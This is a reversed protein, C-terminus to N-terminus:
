CEKGEYIGILDATGAYKGPYHLTTEMGYIEELKNNTLKRALERTKIKIKM